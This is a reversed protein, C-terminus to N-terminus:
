PLIDWNHVYDEVYGEVENFNEIDLLDLIEEEADGFEDVGKLPEGQAEFGITPDNPWNKILLVLLNPNKSGCHYCLLGPIVKALESFTSFQGEHKSWWLLRDEVEELPV